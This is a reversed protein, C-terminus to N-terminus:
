SSTLWGNFRKTLAPLIWIVVVPVLIATAVGTRVPLPASGVLPSIAILLLTLLPFIASWALLALKYRNPPQNM